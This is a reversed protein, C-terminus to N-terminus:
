LCIYQINKKKELSNWFTTTHKSFNHHFMYIVIAITLHGEIEVKGLHHMNYIDRKHLWTSM